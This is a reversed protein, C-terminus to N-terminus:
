KKNKLKCLITGHTKAIQRRDLPAEGTMLTHLAATKAWNKGTIKEALWINVWDSVLRTHKTANKLFARIQKTGMSRVIAGCKDGERYRLWKKRVAESQIASLEWEMEATLNLYVAKTHWYWDTSAFRSALGFDFPANLLIGEYEENAVEHDPYRVALWHCDIVQRDL